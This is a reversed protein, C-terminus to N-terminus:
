PCVGDGDRAVASLLGLREPGPPCAGEPHALRRGPRQRGRPRFRLTSLREPLAGVAQPHDRHARGPRAATPAETSTRSRRGSGTEPEAALGASPGSRRPAHRTSRSRMSRATPESSRGGPAVGTPPRTSPERTRGGVYDPTSPAQATRIHRSRHPMAQRCAPSGHVAMARHSVTRSRRGTTAPTARRSSRAASRPTSPRRISRISSSHMAPTRAAWSNPFDPDPGGTAQWHIGADTSKYIATSKLMQNSHAITYITEPRTPAVVIEAASYWHKAYPLHM